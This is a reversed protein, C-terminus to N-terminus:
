TLPKIRRRAVELDTGDLIKYDFGLDDLTRIMWERVAPTALKWEHVLVFFLRKRRERPSFQGLLASLSLGINVLAKTREYEDPSAKTSREMIHLDRRVELLARNVVSIAVDEDLLYLKRSWPGGLM